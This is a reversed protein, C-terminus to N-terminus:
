TFKTKNIKSFYNYDKTKIGNCKMFTTKTGKENEQLLKLWKVNLRLLKLEM